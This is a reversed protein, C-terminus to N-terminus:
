RTNVQGRTAKACLFCKLSNSFLSVFIRKKIWVQFWRILEWEVCRAGLFFFGWWSQLIMTAAIKMIIAIIM